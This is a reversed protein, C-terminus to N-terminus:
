ELIAFGQKAFHEDFAFCADVSRARAVEFSTCDVLSLKRRGAALVASVAAAHLGENVWHVELAPVVDTVFIRLADLGIRHQLIAATELVVYNSTILRTDGGLERQWVAKARDHFRDDANLVALFASTDVFVKM